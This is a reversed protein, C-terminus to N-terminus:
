RQEKTPPEFDNPIWVIVDFENLSPSLRTRTTVRHGTQKFLEILVATGNVSPAGDTGRRRGYTSPLSENQRGALLAGAVILVVAAAIGLLPLTLGRSTAPKGRAAPTTPPASPM